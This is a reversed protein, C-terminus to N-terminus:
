VAHVPRVLVEEQLLARVLAVPDADADVVLAAEVAADLRGSGVLARRLADEAPSLRRVVVEEGDRWIQLRVAGVDLDVRTDGAEPQNARWVADVPWASHLLNVSPHLAVPSAPSLAALAVPEVEPANLAAGLAWELRAVDPLYELHRAPPFSALFDAFTVGYESLCPSSPPQARIYRDAAYRFFRPDVLRVVVPYTTELATTLSALVHHRYVDLRAAAGLVDARVSAEAVAAGGGLLAAGFAAQLERLAPAPV